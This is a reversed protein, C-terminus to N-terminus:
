SSTSCFPMGDLCFGYFVQFIFFMAVAALLAPQNNSSGFNAILAAEIILTMMCGLIGFAIYKNRPFYDVIPIAMANIGLAFTLWAAPYLLQKVPSFGLNAYLTPGYDVCMLPLIRFCVPLCVTSSWSVLVSFSSRRGLLSFRANAIHRNGSCLSGPVALRGTLRSKNRSRTFNQEPTNTRPIVPIATYDTSFPEHRTLATM